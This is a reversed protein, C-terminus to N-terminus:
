EAGADGGTGAPADPWGLADKGEVTITFQKVDGSIESETRRPMGARDAAFNMAWEFLDGHQGAPGAEIIAILHEAGKTSLARGLRGKADAIADRVEQPVHVRPKRANERQSAKRAESMPGKHKTGVAPPM